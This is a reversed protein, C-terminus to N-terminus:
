CQLGPRCRPPSCVKIKRSVKTYESWLPMKVDVRKWRQDRRGAGEHEAQNEDVEWWGNSWEEPGSLREEKWAKMVEGMAQYCPVPEDTRGRFPIWWVPFWSGTKM